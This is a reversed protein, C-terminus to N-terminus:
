YYISVNRYKNIYLYYLINIRYQNNEAAIHLVSQQKRNKSYIDGGSDVVLKM